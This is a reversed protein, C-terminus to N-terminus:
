RSVDRPLAFYFTAGKDVEAEAWIRGGHRHIIRQVTALGIGTGEFEDAHHMRQFVGFLKNAYAMNFGVGNDRIFIIDETQSSPSTGIEIITPQRSRTYKLANSILNSFVVRLMIPDGCALPLDAVQWRIHRDGTEPAHEQIVEHVLTGLDM